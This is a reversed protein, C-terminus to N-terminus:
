SQRIEIKKSKEPLALSEDVKAAGGCDQNRPIHLIKHDARLPQIRLPDGRVQNQPTRHSPQMPHPFELEISGTHATFLAQGVVGNFYIKDM